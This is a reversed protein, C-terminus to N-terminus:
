YGWGKVGVGGLLGKELTLRRGTRALALVVADGCDPSRGLRRRIDEKSEITIGRATVTYRPACLDALLRRDDPLAIEQGKSPELAERFKWWLEARQNAFGFQGSRDKGESAVAVNVGNINVGQRRLTDYPSAGVGIVDINVVAGGELEKMVFGAVAFGDPTVQGPYKVLPAIWNGYRKAIITQDDGGRAVDVGLASLPGDPSPREKGRAQAARIWDTPIVQWEPDTLGITFDGYLLQSRLPDPM